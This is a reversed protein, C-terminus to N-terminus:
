KDKGDTEGRKIPCHDIDQCPEHDSTLWCAAAQASNLITWECGECRKLRETRTM